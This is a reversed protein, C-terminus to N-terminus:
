GGGPSAPLGEESDQGMQSGKADRPAFSEKLRVGGGLSVIFGLPM